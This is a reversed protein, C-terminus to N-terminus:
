TRCDFHTEEQPVPGPAPTSLIGVYDAGDDRPTNTAWPGYPCLQYPSLCTANEYMTRITAQFEKPRHDYGLIALSLDAAQANRTM